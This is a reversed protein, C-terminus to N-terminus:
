YAFSLWVKFTAPESLEFILADGIELKHALAFGKWGASLCKKKGIYNVKYESGKEDELKM